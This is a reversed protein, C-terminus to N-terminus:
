VSAHRGASPKPHIKVRDYGPRGTRRYPRSRLYKSVEAEEMLKDFAFVPDCVDLFDAVFM